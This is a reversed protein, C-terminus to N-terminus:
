PLLQVCVFMCGVPCVLNLKRAFLVPVFHGKWFFPVIEMECGFEQFVEDFEWLIEM